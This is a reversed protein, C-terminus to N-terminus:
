ALNGVRHWAIAEALQARETEIALGLAGREALLGAQALLPGRRAEPVSEVIRELTKALHLLIQLDSTAYHGYEDFAIVVIREWPDHEWLVRVAGDDDAYRDPLPPRMGIRTIVEAIRDMTLRATTPDNIGPSMAKTAIDSLRQVNFALDDHEGPAEYFQITRRINAEISTRQDDADDDDATLEALDPPQWVTALITGPLVFEGIVPELRVVLDDERACRVLADLNVSGIYGARDARVLHSVELVVDLALGGPSEAPEEPLTSGILALAERTTRDVVTAVEMSRAAHHIFFILLAMCVLALFTAISVSLAPVFPVDNDTGSRVSRLVLLSFIFTGLFTGLTVQNVRDRMISRLVRPTFQSAALQIAVVVISFVTAVVTVTTSAIATLVGRAGEAGGGFFWFSHMRDVPGISEDIRLTLLALLIGVITLLGPFFWLSSRLRYWHPRLENM